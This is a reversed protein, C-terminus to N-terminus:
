PAIVGVCMWQPLENGSEQDAREDAEARDWFASSEATSRDRILRPSRDPVPNGVPPEPYPRWPVDAYRTIVLEFDTV